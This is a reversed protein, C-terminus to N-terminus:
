FDTEHFSIRECTESIAISRCALCAIYFCTDVQKMKLRNFNRFGQNSFRYCMWEHMKLFGPNDM